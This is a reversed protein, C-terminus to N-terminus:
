RQKNDEGEKSIFKYTYFISDITNMTIEM